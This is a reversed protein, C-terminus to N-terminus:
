CPTSVGRRRWCRISADGRPRMWRPMARAIWAREENDIEALRVAALRDCSNSFDLKFHGTPAGLCVFCLAGHMLHRVEALASTVDNAFFRKLLAETGGTIFASIYRFVTARGVDVAEAIEEANLKHQAVL